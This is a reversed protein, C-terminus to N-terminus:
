EGLASPTAEPYSSPVPFPACSPIAQFFCAPTRGQGTYFACGEGGGCDLLVADGKKKYMCLRPDFSVIKSVIDVNCLRALAILPFSALCGGAVFSILMKRTASSVLTASRVWFPM